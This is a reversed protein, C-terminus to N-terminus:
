QNILNYPNTAASQGSQTSSDSPYASNSQAKHVKYVLVVGSILVLVVIFLVLLGAIFGSEDRKVRKFCPTTM